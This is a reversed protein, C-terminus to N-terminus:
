YLILISSSPLISSSFFTFVVLVGLFFVLLVDLFFAVVELVVGLVVVLFVVELLLVLADLLLLITLLLVLFVVVDFLEVVLFLGAVLVTLGFTALSSFSSIFTGSGSIVVSFLTSFGLFSSTIYLSSSGSSNVSKNVLSKVLFTFCWKCSSSIASSKKFSNLGM